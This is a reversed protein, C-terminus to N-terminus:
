SCVQSLPLDRRSLLNLIRALTLVADCTPFDDRFWHRGAPDLAYCGDHRRMLSAFASMSHRATEILQTAHAQLTERTAERIRDPVIVPRDPSEEVVVRVLSKLLREHEVIRGSEDLLACTQGDEDIIFGLHALSNRVAVAVRQVDQDRSNQLDRERRPLQVLQLECPLTAFLRELVGQMLGSVCGVVVRLPRLAHFHKDLHSEYIRQIRFSRTSGAHRTHRIPARQMREEIMDLTPIGRRLAWVSDDGQISEAHGAQELSIEFRSVPQADRAVFDIGTWAPPHGSGTVFLGGSTELHHAALAFQPRTVMGLDIIQCGTRRLASLIGRVLDPSSPREDFGLVLSPRLPIRAVRELSEVGTGARPSAILPAQEWLISAFAAAAAAAWRRDMENLHVGRAGNGTMLSSRAVRSETQQLKKVTQGGLAGTDCRLPCDRCKPFFSALRALHVSRPIPHEEGPCFYM